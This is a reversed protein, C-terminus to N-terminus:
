RIRLEELHLPRYDVGPQDVCICRYPGEPSPNQHIHGHVNLMKTKGGKEFRGEGLTSPHVPVHTLLLGYEPMMRWMSIKEFYKQLVGGGKLLVDHNGLVLRKHGNLRGLIKPGDKERDGFLVDGLHYIKDQPKVYANWNQIMVENMELVDTFSRTKIGHGDEFKLINAHNFHTDSIFWIDAM